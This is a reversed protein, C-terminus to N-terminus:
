RGAWTRTATTSRPASARSRRTARWCAWRSRRTRRAPRRRGSRTRTSDRDAERLRPDLEHPLAPGPVAGDDRDHLAELARDLRLGRRDRVEPGEGDPGRLLLRLVPRRAPRPDRSPVARSASTAPSRASRRSTPRAPRDPVFVGRGADFEVRAGAQALLKYNPQPSGSMVVLDAKVHRGDISVQAVKGGKGQAEIAPSADSASTSSGRSRSARGGRPRGRGALGRDDVTLVVAREAPKLSFGNVLRRVADPLMVGVLDNGPFVLPQEVIGSAVVVRRARFKLLLNGYAVPVLGQEFLGIAIAPALLEVGAEVARRKLEAAAAIGDRDALLAGGVDYGEDVVVVSEGGEAAAIAAELGARGGGIVVVDAHRHEVDVREARVGAPDLKGLGAAGRLVKEYLPWLRRPRIFTKYYFGPPTFPGGIKDTVQMLDHELSGVYNQGQVVAGERLPEICVRVNPIGDVTMQCNACHGSCCQLGRPRHYKFSRSFVRQGSAYLASGITDGRFGSSANEGHFPVDLPQSRDIREGPQQPLRM